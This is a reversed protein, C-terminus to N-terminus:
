LLPLPLLPLAIRDIVLSIESAKDRRVKPRKKGIVPPLWKALRHFHRLLNRRLTEGILASRDVGERKSKLSLLARPLHGPIWASQRDPVKM